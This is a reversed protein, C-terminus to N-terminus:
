PITRTAILNCFIQIGATNNSLSPVTLCLSVFIHRVILCLFARWGKLSAFFSSFMCSSYELSKFQLAKSLKVQTQLFLVNSTVYSIDKSKTLSTFSRNYECVLRYNKDYFHSWDKDTSSIPTSKMYVYDRCLECTAFTELHFHYSTKVRDQAPYEIYTPQSPHHM